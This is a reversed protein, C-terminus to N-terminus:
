QGTRRQCTGQRASVLLGIRSGSEDHMATASRYFTIEYRMMAMLHQHQAAACDFVKACSRSIPKRGQRPTCELDDHVRCIGPCQLSDNPWMSGAAWQHKGPHRHNFIRPELRWNDLLDLGHGGDGRHARYSVRLSLRNCMAVSWTEHNCGRSTALGMNNRLPKDPQDAVLPDVRM